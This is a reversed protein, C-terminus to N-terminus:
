GPLPVVWEVSTGRGDGAPSTVVCRGGLDEARVRLNELGSRRTTPGIGVGDDTVTVSLEGARVASHIRVRDAAAHRACNSLVERLAAGLHDAVEHPVPLPRLGDHTLVPELGLVDSFELALDRLLVCADTDQESDKLQFITGRITRITDDGDDILERLAAATGPERTRAALASMRLGGAFLQQIVQDHLDRAIRDRDDLMSVRRRDAQARGLEVALGVHIAFDAAMALDQGDFARGGRGRSLCLFRRDVGAGPAVRVVLATGDPVGPTTAGLGAVAAEAVVGDECGSLVAAAPGDPVVWRAGRLAEGGAGVAAVVRLDDRADTQVVVALDAEAAAAARAAVAHLPSVDEGVLDRVIDASASLWRQRREAVDFLRANEIAVGAASALAVLLEEDEATFDARQGGAQGGATKESLYLNGFVADRVRVPVGLFSRMPPHGPPLGAAAPHQSLDPLRLPEPHRVLEGLVGEGRPLRGIGRATEEEVGVTIFRSLGGDEGVVGLAGYRAGLLECAAQTIRRLLTPLDLDSSIARTAALLGQLRGQTALVDQARDILQQLLDDLELRAVQPFTVTQEGGTRRDQPTRPTQPTQPTKSTM